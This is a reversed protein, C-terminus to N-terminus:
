IAVALGIVGAVSAVEPSYSHTHMLHTVAFRLQEFGM